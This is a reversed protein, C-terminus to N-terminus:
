LLIQLWLLSVLPSFFDSSWYLLNRLCHLLAIKLATLPAAKRTVLATYSHNCFICPYLLNSLNLAETAAWLCSSLMRSTSISLIKCLVHSEMLDHCWVVVSITVFPFVIIVSPAIPAMNQKTKYNSYGLLSSRIDKDAKKQSKNLPFLNLLIFCM